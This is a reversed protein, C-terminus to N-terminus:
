KAKGPHPVLPPPSPLEYEVDHLKGLCWVMNSDGVGCIVFTASIRNVTTRLMRSLPYLNSGSLKGFRLHIGSLKLSEYKIKALGM